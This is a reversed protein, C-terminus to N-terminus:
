PCAGFSDCTLLGPTPDIGCSPFPAPPTAGGAFVYNLGFIIDAVNVSEDDNVDHAAPCASAGAGGFLVLLTAIPDGVNISGDGNADGRVMLAFPPIVEFITLDLDSSTVGGNGDTIQLIAHDTGFFGASPTYTISGGSFTLAGNTPGALIASITLTDGDADFDNATVDYTLSTDEDLVALDASAVPADNVPLVSLSVTATSTLGSPDTITYTVSDQGFYDADPTYLIQTAPAGVLSAIGHLPTGVAILELPDGDLDIDNALLLALTITRTTDEALPVPGDDGAVPADAVALIELAVTATASGGQNDIVTYTFIEGGSANPNPTYLINGNALTSVSGRIPTSFAAVSLLDGDVDSDNALVNIELAADEDTFFGVDNVAVPADNAAIVILTVTSPSSARGDTTVTSFSVGVETTFNPAPVITIEGQPTFTVEGPFNVPVNISELALTDNEIDSDNLLANITIPQDEITLALDSSTIPADNIPTVSVSVSGTSIAGSADSVVYLFNDPLPLALNALPQYRVQNGVVSTTGSFGTSVAVLTLAEGEADLDNSLVPIDVSGDEDVVAFDAIATPADNVQVVDLTVTATDLGGRSDTITYTFADAGTMNAAPDFALVSASLQTISGTAPQTFAVIALADGDPDSDNSVVVLNTRTDELAAAPDDVANPATNGVFVSVTATDSGGASDSITYSFTDVGVFLAPPTYVLGTITGGETSAADVSSVTLTDGDIDTDNALLTAAAITLAGGVPTLLDDNNAIPADNVPNVTVTVTAFGDGGHGDTVRYGFTDAGSFNSAPTYTYTGDENDSITGGQTSVLDASFISLVDFDPDLDNALLIASLLILATDEDTVIDGAVGDAQAVPLENPIDCNRGPSAAFAFSLQNPNPLAAPPWPVLDAPGFPHHAFIRNASLAPINAQTRPDLSSYPFPDLSHSGMPATGCNEAGTTDLCGGPSLRRDLNWPEGSFIFPTSLLNLDVEGFEPHGVGIPTLYQGHAWADGVINRATVGPLLTQTHRSYVQIERTIPVLLALEEDMTGGNPCVPFGANLLNQCASVDPRVPAGLDFDVDYHIKFIGGATPAIGQQITDLNGVTSGLIYEQNQGTVPDLQLSFMDVQSSDLTSFGIFLAKVRHNAFGAADWEVEAMTLYDVQDPTERTELKTLLTFTHSSFFRVGNVTEWNGEGGVNDGIGLPYQFTSDPVQLGSGGGLARNSLPCFADGAGTTADAGQTRAGIGTVTSPICVPYGSTAVLTYNEPDNTFRPDPSCNPGGACGLGQQISHIQDPDNWRVIIGPNNAPGNAESPLAGPIGNLVMYGDTYSLYSITGGVVDPVLAGAVVGNAAKAIFIDGAILFGEATRNALIVAQGGPEKNRCIDSEALGSEGLAVCAPPADNFLQTLSLRNAPLDILLNRPVIVPSGNVIITGSSWYDAPDDLFIHEIEGVLSIGSNQADATGGALSLLFGLLLAVLGAHPKQRQTM